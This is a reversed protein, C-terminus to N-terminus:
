QRIFCVILDTRAGQQTVVGNAIKKPRDRYDENVSKGTPAEAEGLKEGSMALTTDDYLTAWNETSVPDLGIVSFGTIKDVNPRISTTPIVFGYAEGSTNRITYSYETIATPAEVSYCFGVLGFVFLVALVITKKVM